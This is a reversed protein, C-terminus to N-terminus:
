ISSRFIEPVDSFQFAIFKYLNLKNGYIKAMCPIINHSQIQICGSIDLNITLLTEFGVCKSYVKDIEQRMDRTWHISPIKKNWIGDRIGSFRNKHDVRTVRIQAWGMETSISKWTLDMTAFYPNESWSSFLKM